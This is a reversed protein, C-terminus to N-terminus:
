LGTKRGALMPSHEPGWVGAAQTAMDTYTPRKLPAQEGSVDTQTGCKSISKPGATQVAEDRVILIGKKGSGVVRRVEEDVKEQFESHWRQSSATVTDLTVKFGDM